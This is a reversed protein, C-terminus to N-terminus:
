RSRHRESIARPRVHSEFFLQNFLIMHRQASRKARCIQAAAALCVL